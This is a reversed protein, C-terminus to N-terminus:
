QYECSVWFHLRHVFVVYIPINLCCTGFIVRFTIADHRVVYCVHGVNAYNKHELVHFVCWLLEFECPNVLIPLILTFIKCVLIFDSYFVRFVTKQLPARSFSFCLPHLCRASYTGLRRHPVFALQYTVHSSRVNLWMHLLTCSTGFYFAYM